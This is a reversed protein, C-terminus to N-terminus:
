GRKHRMLGLMLLSSALIAVSTPEPVASFPDGAPAAVDGTHGTTGMIDTAFFLGSANQVFSSPTIGGAATVDFQLPGSSTPSSIGTGCGTCDISYEWYGTGDAHINGGSATQTATFMPTLNSVVISPNGVIDFLLADGATTQAFLEGATLTLDVSVATPSISSVTVTGFPSTGCGGTCDDSTLSYSITEASSTTILGAGIAAFSLFLAWKLM